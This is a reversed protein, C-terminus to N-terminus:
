TEMKKVCNMAWETSQEVGPVEWVENKLQM